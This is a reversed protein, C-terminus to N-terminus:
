TMGRYIRRGRRASRANWGSLMSDEWFYQIFPATFEDISIHPGKTM